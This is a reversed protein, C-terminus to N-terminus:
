LLQAFNELISKTNSEISINIDIMFANPYADLKVHMQTGIAYRLAKNLDCDWFGVQQARLIKM